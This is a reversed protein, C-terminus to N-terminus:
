RKTESVAIGGSLSNSDPAPRTTAWQALSHYRHSGCARVARQHPPRLPVSRMTYGTRGGERPGSTRLVQSTCATHSRARRTQRSLQHLCVRRTELHPEQHPAMGENEPVARIAHNGLQQSQTSKPRSTKEEKTAHRFQRSIFIYAASEPRDNGTESIRLWFGRAPGRVFFGAASPLGPYSGALPNLSRTTDSAEMTAVM